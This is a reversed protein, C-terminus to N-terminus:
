RATTWRGHAQRCAREHTERLQGGIVASALYDRCYVGRSTEYTQTPVVTYTLGSDPNRWLVRQQDPAFELVNGVCSQDVPDMKAGLLSGVLMPAAAADGAKLDAALINRDCLGRDIGYPVLHLNYATAGQGPAPAHFPGAPSWPTPGVIMRSLPEVLAFAVGLALGFGLVEKSFRVGFVM